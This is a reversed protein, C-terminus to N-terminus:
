WRQSIYAYYTEPTHAYFITTNSNNRFFVLILRYGPNKTFLDIGEIFGYEIQGMAAPAIYYYCLDFLSRPNNKPTKNYYEDVNRAAKGFNKVAGRAASGSINMGVKGLSLYARAFADNDRRYDTSEFVETMGYKDYGWATLPVGTVFDQTNVYNELVSDEQVIYYGHNFVSLFLVTYRTFDSFYIFHSISTKHKEQLGLRKYCVIFHLSNDPLLNLLDTIWTLFRGWSFNTCTHIGIPIIIWIYPCIYRVNNVMEELVVEDGEGGRRLILM